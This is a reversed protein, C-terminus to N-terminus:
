ILTGITYIIRCCDLKEEVSKDPFLDIIYQKMEKKEKDPMEEIPPLDKYAILLIKSSLTGNVLFPIAAEGEKQFHDMYIVVLKKTVDLM